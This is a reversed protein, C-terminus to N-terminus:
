ARAEIVLNFPTQAAVRVRGLGGAHLRAALAAFGAQAGLGDHDGQHLANQTCLATSAAYYMRAVPGVNAEPADHAFPEVLLVAGDDALAARAARAAAVPDGLDHFADMFCVLDLAGAAVDAVELLAAAPAVEFRVRDAVGADAARERATAISAAHADLGVLRAAPFAQALLITSAGHGCGVDAVRGGAALAAARDGLAPIWHSVLNARYSSRFFAETGLFLRHDHEHWGVGSGTRFSELLREEARWIASTVDFAPTMFAPSDPQALVFAHEPPLVFRGSAADFTLYGAARQSALWERVLRPETGTAAALEEPTRPAAALAQYFGLKGGLSTMASGMAAALDGVVQAAFAEIRTPDM